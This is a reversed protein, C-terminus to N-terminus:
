DDDSQIKPSTDWDDDDIPGPAHPKDDDFDDRDLEALDLRESKDDSSPEDMPVTSVAEGVHDPLQEVPSKATQQNKRREQEILFNSRMKVYQADLANELLIVKHMEKPSYEQFFEKVQDGTDEIRALREWNESLGEVIKQMHKELEESADFKGALHEITNSIKNMSEAIRVLVDRNEREHKRVISLADQWSRPGSKELMEGIPHRRTSIASM